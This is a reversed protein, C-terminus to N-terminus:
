RFVSSTSLSVLSIASSYENSGCTPVGELCFVHIEV